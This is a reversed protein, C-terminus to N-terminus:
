VQCLIQNIKILRLDSKFHKYLRDIFTKHSTPNIIYRCNWHNLNSEMNQIQLSYQRVYVGFWTM